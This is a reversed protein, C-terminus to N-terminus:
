KLQSPSFDDQNIGPCDLVASKKSNYIKLGNKLDQLQFTINDLFPCKQRCDVTEFDKLNKFIILSKLECESALM